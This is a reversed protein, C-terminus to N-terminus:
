AQRVDQRAPAVDAPRRARLLVRLVFAPSFLWEPRRVLALVENLRLAVADDDQATVIARAMYRNLLDTGRPKPGRTDPYDFDGGVAISWPV